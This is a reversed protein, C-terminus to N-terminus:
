KRKCDSRDGGAGRFEVNRGGGEQEFHFLGDDDFADSVDGVVAHVEFAPASSGTVQAQRRISQRNSPADGAGGGSGGEARRRRQQQQLEKHEAGQHHRARGRQPPSPEEKQQQQQQLYETESIVYKLSEDQETSVTKKTSKRKEGKPTTGKKRPSTVSHQGHHEPARNLL